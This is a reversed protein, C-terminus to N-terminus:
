KRSAAPRRPRRPSRGRLFDRVIYGVLGSVIFAEAFIRMFVAGVRTM